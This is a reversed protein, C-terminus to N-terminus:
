IKSGEPPKEDLKEILAQCADRMGATHNVLGELRVIEASFNRIRDELFERTIELADGKEHRSLVM